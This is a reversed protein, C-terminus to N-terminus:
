WGSQPRVWRAFCQPYCADEDICKICDEAQITPSHTYKNPLVLTHLSTTLAHLSITLTHLSTTLICMYWHITCQCWSMFFRYYTLFVDKSWMKIPQCTVRMSEIIIICGELGRNKIVKRTLKVAFTQKCEYEVWEFDSGFGTECIQFYTGM